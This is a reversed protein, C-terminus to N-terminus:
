PRRFEITTINALGGESKVVFRVRDGKRGGELKGRIESRLEALMVKDGDFLCVMPGDGYTIRWADDLAKYEPSAKKVDCQLEAIWSMEKHDKDYEGRLVKIIPKDDKDKVELLNADWKIDSFRPEREEKKDDDKGTQARADVAGLYLALAAVATLLHRLRM